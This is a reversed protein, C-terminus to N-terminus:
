ARLAVVKGPQCYSAWAEMLKRRKEVASERRYAAEVKQAVAHGLAHELLDREYDTRDGAWDRFSSRFGHATIERNGEKPDFFPAKGNRVRQANIGLLLRRFVNGGMPKGEKFGPFIFGRGKPLEWVIEYARGSLPITHEKNTKTHKAPITWLRKEFDIEKRTINRVALPHKSAAGSSWM